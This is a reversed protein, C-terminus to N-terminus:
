KVQKELERVRRRLDTNEKKLSAVLRKHMKIEENLIKVKQDYMAVIDTYKQEYRASLDDLMSKYLDVAHVENDIKKGENDTKLGAVEEKRRQRELFWGVAGTGGLLLSIISTIYEFIPPPM